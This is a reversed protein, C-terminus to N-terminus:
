EHLHDGGRGALLRDHGPLRLRRQVGLRNLQAAIASPSRSANNTVFGLRMGRGRAEALAETAGTVAAGGTYVVGDLDLLAVDYVGSPPHESSRPLATERGARVPEAKAPEPM